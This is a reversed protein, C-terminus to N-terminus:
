SKVNVKEKMAKYTAKLVEIIQQRKEAPIEDVEAYGEIGLCKYFVKEGLAKKAKEFPDDIVHTVASDTAVVSPAEIAKPMTIESKVVGPITDVETEDLMGLGCLALVARRKAKTVAKMLANAMAEGKLGVLSVAGDEDTFRDGMKARVTVVYVDEIKEKKTVETSINYVQCLQQSCGKDAYLVEKGGLRLIKFPQTMPDVGLRECLGTVYQVRQTQDLKSIDGNLILSAVIDKPVIENAM